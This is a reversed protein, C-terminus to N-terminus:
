TYSALRRLHLLFLCDRGYGRGGGFYRQALARIDNCFTSLNALRFGSPASPKAIIKKRKAIVSPVGFTSNPTGSNGCLGNPNSSPWGHIARYPSSSCNLDIAVRRRACFVSGVMSLQSPVSLLPRSLQDRITHPARRERKRATQASHMAVTTPVSMPTTQPYKRPHASVIGCRNMSASCANGASSVNIRM